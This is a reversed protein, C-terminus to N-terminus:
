GYKRSYPCRKKYAAVAQARGGGDTMFDALEDQENDPEASSM